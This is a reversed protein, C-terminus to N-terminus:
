LFDGKITPWCKKLFENSFGDPGPSKDNPLTKIVADIESNSFPAELFILEDSREMFQAPNCNFSSFESTGLREKYENWLLLEKDKHSTLTVDDVTDLQSILNGRHRITANAHFFNRTADGFKVWKIAGRQRRYINQQKLLSLLRGKLIDKFNWEPLSLDRVEEIVEFFQILLKTNAIATKLNSLTVHWAKLAGRLKKMKATIIKACDM